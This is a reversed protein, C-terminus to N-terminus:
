FRLGGCDDILEILQEISINVEDCEYLPDYSYYISMIYAWEASGVWQKAIRIHSNNPRIFAHAVCGEEPCIGANIGIEFKNGSKCILDVHNDTGQDNKYKHNMYGAYFYGM